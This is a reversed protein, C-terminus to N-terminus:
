IDIYVYMHVYISLYIYLYLEIYVYVNASAGQEYHERADAVAHEDHVKDFYGKRTHLRHGRRWSIMAGDVPAAPVMSSAGTDM